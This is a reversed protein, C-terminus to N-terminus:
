KQGNPYCHYAEIPAAFERRGARRSPKNCCRQPCRQYKLLVVSKLGFARSINNSSNAIARTGSRQGIAQSSHSGITAVNRRAQLRWHRNVMRVKLLDYSVIQRSGSLNALTQRLGRLIEGSAETGLAYDRLM